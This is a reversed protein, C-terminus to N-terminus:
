VAKSKKEKPLSIKHYWKIITYRSFRKRGKRQLIVMQQTNQNTVSHNAHQKSSRVYKKHASNDIEKLFM